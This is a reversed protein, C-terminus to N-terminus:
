QVGEDNKSAPIDPNINLDTVEIASLKRVRRNLAILLAVMGVTLVTLGCLAAPIVSISWSTNQVFDSVVAFGAGIASGNWIGHILIVVVYTGLLRGYRRDRFAAVIAWGMLGSTIVHLLSTGARISVILAWGMNGQGSAGLSEFMAYAAGSLLGLAFGQAPTEIKRAFLWVGLPKFMEEFMPVALAIFGFAIGVVSPKVILPAATNLIVQPNTENKLLTAIRM